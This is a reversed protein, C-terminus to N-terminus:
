GLDVDSERLSDAKHGRKLPLFPRNEVDLFRWKQGIKEDGRSPSWFDVLFDVLIISKGDLFRGFVEIFVMSTHCAESPLFVM